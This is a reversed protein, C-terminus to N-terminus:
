WPICLNTHPHYDNFSIGVFSFFRRFIDTCRASNYMLISVSIVNLALFALISSSLESISDTKALTITIAFGSLSADYMHCVVRADACTRLVRATMDDSWDPFHLLLVSYVDIFEYRISSATETDYTERLCQICKILSLQQRTMTHAPKSKTYSQM